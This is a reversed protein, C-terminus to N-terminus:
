GGIILDVFAFFFPKLDMQSLPLEGHGKLTALFLNSKTLSMM